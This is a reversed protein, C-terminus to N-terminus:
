IINNQKRNSRLSQDYIFPKTFKYMSQLITTNEISNPFMNKLEYTSNM